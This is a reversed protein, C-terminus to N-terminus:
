INTVLIEANGYLKYGGYGAPIFFTDGKIFKRNEIVGSGEMVTVANFSKEGCNLMLGGAVSLKKVTFYKCKALINDERSKQPLYKKYNIVDLAKDIHLPRKKGDAGVRNYDYVRYTVNSSQQIECITVGRCIAHIQGAEILYCDGKKVPIYNLLQEVTNDNLAKQMTQRDIDRKFGLFIGGDEEADAIYWMETKGFDNEYKLAYDDDPHVQVSLNQNADILKILIPFREGGYGSGIMQPTIIKDLPTGGEAGSVGDKHLSLEWSEAIIKLDSQKNWIKKLKEGGWIYDKFAPETKIIEMALIIFESLYITLGNYLNNNYYFIFKM